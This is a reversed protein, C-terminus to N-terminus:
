FYTTREPFTVNTKIEDYQSANHAVYVNRQWNSEVTLFENTGRDFNCTCLESRLM